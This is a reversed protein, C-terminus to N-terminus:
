FGLLVANDQFSPSKGWFCFFGEIWVVPNFVEYDKAMPVENHRVAGKIFSSSAGQGSM